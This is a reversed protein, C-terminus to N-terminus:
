SIQSTLSNGKLLQHIVRWQLISGSALAQQRPLFAHRWLSTSFLQWNLRLEPIRRSTWSTAASSRSMVMKVWRLYKELSYRQKLWFRGTNADLEIRKKFGKKSWFPSILANPRTVAESLKCRMVKCPPLWNTTRRVRDLYQTGFILFKTFATILV